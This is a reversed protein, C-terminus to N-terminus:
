NDKKIKTKTQLNTNQDYKFIQFRGLKEMFTPNKQQQELFKLYAKKNKFKKNYIFRYRNNGQKITYMNQDCILQTHTDNTCVVHEIFNGLPKTQTDNTKNSLYM